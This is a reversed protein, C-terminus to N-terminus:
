ATAALERREARIREADERRILRLGSDTRDCPLKGADTWLRVTEASVELLRAAESTTLIDARM